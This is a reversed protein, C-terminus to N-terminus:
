GPRSFARVKFAQAFDKPQAGPAYRGGAALMRDLAARDVAVDLPQAIAAVVDHPRRSVDDLTFFLPDIGALAFLRRFGADEAILQELAELAESEGDPRPTSSVRPSFDWRGTTIARRYSRFQTAVDPRLLHVVQAGEFLAAGHRNRLAQDFQWYQLKTAFVGNAVRRRRLADIYAGIAAEGLPDGALSWRVALPAAFQGHFYEHPVGVGAATLLRCLEYSGARQAACIILTRSAPETPQRDFEPGILDILDPRATGQGQAALLGRLWGIM